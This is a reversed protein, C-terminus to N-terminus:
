VTGHVQAEEIKNWHLVIDWIHRSEGLPKIAAKLTQEIGDCNVITGNKEAFTTGPLVVQMNAPTSDSHFVGIGIM